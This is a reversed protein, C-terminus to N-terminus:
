FVCIGRNVSFFCLKTSWEVVNVLVCTRHLTEISKLVFKRVSNILMKFTLYIIARFVMLNWLKFGEKITWM